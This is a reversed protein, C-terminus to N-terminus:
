SAKEKRKRYLNSLEISRRKNENAIAEDYYKKMSETNSNLAAVNLGYRKDYEDLYEDLEKNKEDLKLKADFQKSDLELQRQKFEVEQQKTIGNEEQIMAYREWEAQSNIQAVLIQTQLKKANM